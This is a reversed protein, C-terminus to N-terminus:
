NIFFLRKNQQQQKNNTYTRACESTNYPNFFLLAKLAVFEDTEIALDRIPAVLERVIRGVVRNIDGVRFSADSPLLKDNASLPSHAARPSPQWLEGLWIGQDTPLSRLAVGLVILATANAKLLGAQPYGLKQIAM